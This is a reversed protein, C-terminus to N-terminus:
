PAVNLTHLTRTQHINLKGLGQDTIQGNVEINDKFKITIFKTTNVYTSKWM